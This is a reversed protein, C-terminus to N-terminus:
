TLSAPQPGAGGAATGVAQEVFAAIEAAVRQKDVDVSVVHYSDDLLVTRVRGHVGREVLAVNVLPCTHDQRSHIVLVPQQVQPLVRRVTRQLDLLQLVGRLPVRQYCPTEARARADAIDREAKAFYRRRQSLFPLLLPLVPGLWRLSRRALVLAPALLVVGGVAAPYDVALKLALLAGMSQGVVVVEPARRHLEILGERASVYWDGWTCRELDEPATGHGALRVGGVSYGRAHLHEGLFRMENPTATFGHLLLCGMSGAPLFFAESETRSAVEPPVNAEAPSLV